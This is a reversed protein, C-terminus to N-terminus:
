DQEIVICDIKRLYFTEWVQFENCSIDLDVDKLKECDIEEWNKEEVTFFDEYDRSCALFRDYECDFLFTVTKPCVAEAALKILFDENFQFASPRHKVLTVVVELFQLFVPSNESTKTHLRTMFKHGALIWEQYILDFFGKITRTKKELVLRTLASMQATRDWGDSCHVLVNVESRILGVAMKVCVLLSSLLELWGSIKSFYQTPTLTKRDRLANRMNAFTNRVEHINPINLFQLDTKTYTNTNEYGGGNVRNANANVRSRCDLIVLTSEESKGVTRICNLYTQDEKSASEVFVGIYYNSNAVLPQASRFLSTHTLNDEYMCIPLRKKSRFNACQLIVDDSADKPVVFVEPYTECFQFRPNSYEKFLNTDYEIVSKREVRTKDQRYFLGKDPRNIIGCELCRKKITTVVSESDNPAMPINLSNPLDAQYFPNPTVVLLGNSYGVDFITNLPFDYVVNKKEENWLVFVFRRFTIYIIGEVTKTVLLVEESETLQIKTTFKCGELQITFQDDDRRVKTKILCNRDYPSPCLTIVEENNPLEYLSKIPKDQYFANSINTYCFADYLADRVHSQELPITEIPRYLFM